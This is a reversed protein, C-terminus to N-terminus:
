TSGCSKGGHQRSNDRVTSTSAFALSSATNRKRSSREAAQYFPGASRPHLNHGGLDGAREAVAPLLKALHELRGNV